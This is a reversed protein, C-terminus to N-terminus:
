RKSFSKKGVPKGIKKPVFWEKKKGGRCVFDLRDLELPARNAVALEVDKKEILMQEQLYVGYEEELIDLLLILKEPPLKLFDALQKLKSM